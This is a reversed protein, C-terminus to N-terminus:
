LRFYSALQMVHNNTFADGRGDVYQNMYGIEIDTRPGIRYGTAIYFRNQDFIKGNVDSTNGFNLFVENQLAAYMGKQFQDQKKLPLINRFFYRFRNAYNYGDHELDNNVIKSQSIFRQEVRFRHSVSVSKIKHSVILQEWVRHEPAYGHVTGVTRRNSIFGYGATVVLNKKLHVNFGTRFLFSQMHKINASSRWQIDNHISTKKGTKFNNFTAAWGAFQSQSYLKLSLTISGTFLISVFLKKM